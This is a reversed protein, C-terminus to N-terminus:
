VSLETVKILTVFFSWEASFIAQALVHSVFTQGM